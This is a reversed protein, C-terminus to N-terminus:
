IQYKARRREEQLALSHHIQLLQQDLLHVFDHCGLRRRLTLWDM